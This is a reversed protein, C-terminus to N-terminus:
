QGRNALVSEVRSNRQDKWARYQAWFEPHAELSSRQYASYIAARVGVYNTSTRCKMDAIATAIEDANPENAGAYKGDPDVTSDFNYGAARMCKSWSRIAKQVRPDVREQADMAAFYKFATAVTSSGSILGQDVAKECGGAPVPKGSSDTPVKSDKGSPGNVIVSSTTAGRPVRFAHKRAYAVGNEDEPDHYGFQAAVKPDVLGYRYSSLIPVTSPASAAVYQQGYRQTCEGMLVEHAKLQRNLEARTQVYDGLPWGIQKVSTVAAPQGISPLHPTSTHSNSGCATLLTLAALSITYSASGVWYRRM